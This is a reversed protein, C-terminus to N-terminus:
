PRRTLFMGLVVAAAGLIAIMVIHPERLAADTAQAFCPGAGAKFADACFFVSGVCWSAAYLFAAVGLLVFSRGANKM